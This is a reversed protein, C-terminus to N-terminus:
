VNRYVRVATYHLRAREQASSGAAQLAFKGFFACAAGHTLRFWTRTLNQKILSGTITTRMSEGNAADIALAPVIVPVLGASLPGPVSRAASPVATLPSAMLKESPRGAVMVSVLPSNNISLLRLMTPGPAPASVMVPFRLLGALFM